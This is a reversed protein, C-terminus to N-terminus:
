YLNIWTGVIIRNGPSPWGFILSFKLRLKYISVVEKKFGKDVLRADFEEFTEVSQLALYLEEEEEEDACGHLQNSLTNLLATNQRVQSKIDQLIRVM